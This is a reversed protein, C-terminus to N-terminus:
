FTCKRNNLLQMKSQLAKNIEDLSNMQAQCRKELEAFNLKVESVLRSDTSNRTPVSPELDRAFTIGLKLLFFLLLIM